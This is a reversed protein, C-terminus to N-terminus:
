APRSRGGRGPDQPAHEELSRTAPPHEGTLLHDPLWWAAACLCLGLWGIGLLWGGLVDTFWHVGLYVRTVGVLLGWCVVAVALPARGRPARALLAIVLIGASLAATTTHGSPFSFGSAHTQWDAHPPRQRDVLTMLGYRVAQGAALCGVTLAACALRHRASRGAVLGALVALMYPVVGTGTATLGRALAVVVPPRHGASWTLAQEDFFLPSDPHAIVVMTLVGFVVWAALGTGGALDAIRRRRM